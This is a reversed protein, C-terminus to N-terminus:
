GRCASLIIEQAREDLGHDRYNLRVAPRVGWRPCEPLFHEAAKRAEGSSADLGLGSWCLSGYPVFAYGPTCFRTFRRHIRTSFDTVGYGKEESTPAARLGTGTLRFFNYGLEASYECCFARNPLGEQIADFIPRDEQRWINIADIYPIDVDYQRCVRMLNDRTIAISEPHRIDARIIPYSWVHGCRVAGGIRYRGDSLDPMGGTFDLRVRNAGPAFHFRFRFRVRDVAFSRVGELSLYAEMQEPIECTEFV